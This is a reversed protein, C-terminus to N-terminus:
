GNNAKRNRDLIGLAVFTFMAIIVLVGWINGIYIDKSPLKIITKVNNQSDVKTIINQRQLLYYTCSGYETNNEQEFLATYQDFVINEANGASFVIVDIINSKEFVYIINGRAYIYLRGDLYAIDGDGNPITYVQIGYQFEGDINYVNVLGSAEYHLFIYGEEVIMSTIEEYPILAQTHITYHKPEHIMEIRDFNDTYSELLLFALLFGILACIILAVVTTKRM